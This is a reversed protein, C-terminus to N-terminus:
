HRLEARKMELYVQEDAEHLQPAYREIATIWQKLRFEQQQAPPQALSAIYAELALFYRMTNREVLGRLGTMYVAQGDPKRETVTFGIKERGATALYAQMAMRSAMGAEYTYAMHVFSRGDPLPMAEVEIRYDHTGLPGKPATLVADVYGAQQAPAQYAFDIRQAKELPIDYRRSIWLALTAQTGATGLQCQKNNLHLMLIDCWHGVNPVVKAIQAFPLEVVAYVRGAIADGQQQSEIVIPRQLASTRLAERLAAHRERLAAAGDGPQATQAAAGCMGLAVCAGACLGVLWARM